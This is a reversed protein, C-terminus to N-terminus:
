VREADLYQLQRSELVIGTLLKVLELWEQRVHALVHLLHFRGIQIRDDQGSTGVAELLREEPLVPPVFDTNVTGHSRLDLVDRGVLDRRHRGDRM